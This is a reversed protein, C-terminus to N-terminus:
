IKTCSVFNNRCQCSISTSKMNIFGASLQWGFIQDCLVAIKWEIVFKKERFDNSIYKYKRIKDSSNIVFCTSVFFNPFFCTVGNKIWAGLVSFSAGIWIRFRNESWQVWAHAYILVFYVARNSILFIFYYFSFYFFVFLIIPLNFTDLDLISYM